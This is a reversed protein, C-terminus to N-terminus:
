EWSLCVKQTNLSSLDDLINFYLIIELTTACASLPLHQPRRGLPVQASWAGSSAPSAAPGPVCSGGTTPPSGSSAAASSKVVTPIAVAVNQAVIRRSRQAMARDGM